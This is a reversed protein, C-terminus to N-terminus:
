SSRSRFYVNTSAIFAKYIIAVFKLGDDHICTLRFALYAVVNYLLHLTLLSKDENTSKTTWCAVNSGGPDKPEVVDELGSEPQSDAVSTTPALVASIADAAAGREFAAQLAAGMPDDKATEKVFSIPKYGSM